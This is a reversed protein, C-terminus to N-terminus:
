LSEKDNDMRRAMWYLLAPFAFLLYLTARLLLVMLEFLLMM